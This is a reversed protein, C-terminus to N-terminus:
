LLLALTSQLHNTLRPYDVYSVIGRKTRFHDTPFEESVTLVQVQPAITM